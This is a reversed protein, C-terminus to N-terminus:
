GLVERVLADLGVARSAKVLVLDDETLAPVIVRSAEGVDLAREIRDESLGMTLAAEAM